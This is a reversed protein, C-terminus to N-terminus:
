AQGDRIICRQLVVTLLAHFEAPINPSFSVSSPVPDWILARSGVNQVFKQRYIVMSLQGSRTAPYFKGAFLPMRIALLMEDKAQRM